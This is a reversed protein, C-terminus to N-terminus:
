ESITVPEGIRAAAIQARTFPLPLWQKASFARTGDAYWPSEPNTSQSYSLMSQAVPGTADFSVVQMFSSGHVPVLGDPTWASQMANLIGASGPGGHIAIREGARPSIQVSGLPADLAIGRQAMDTAAAALADLIAPAAKANLDSPREIPKGIEFPNAWFDRIQATRGWFNLFLLAGRSGVDVHRDWRALVACAPALDARAPCLALLQDLILEAALVRNGLILDRATNEATMAVGVM